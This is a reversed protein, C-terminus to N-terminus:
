KYTKAKKKNMKNMKMDTEIEPRKDSRMDPRKDLRRDPKVDPRMDSEIDSRINDRCSMDTLAKRMENTENM